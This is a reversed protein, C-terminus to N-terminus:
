RSRTWLGAPPEGVQQECTARATALTGEATQRTATASALAAEAQAVDTRTLEGVRFRDNTAQLEKTLLAENAQDLALLQEDQIVSVYANITDGFVQEEAAYLQARGSLVQNEAKNISARTKGGRYLPQTITLQESKRHDAQDPVRHRVEAPRDVPQHHRGALQDVHEHPRGDRHDLDAAALRGPRRAGDRPRVSNPAPRRCRRTTPMPPRWRTRCRTRRRNCTRPMPKPTPTQARALGAALVVAVGAAMALRSQMVEVRVNLRPAAARHRYAAVRGRATAPGGTCRGCCRSVRWRKPPGRCAPVAPAALPRILLRFGSRPAVLATRARRLRVDAAPEARGGVGRGGGGPQGAGGGPAGRGATGRPSRLQAVLAPPIEAVTGEVFVVDYPAGASWGAALPGTVLTVGAVGALAGRALAILAADDELATVKAGCAALLAAGYGTGAGVVLAREGGRVGALQVLRGIVMPEVLARGNGLPVDADSYALPAM